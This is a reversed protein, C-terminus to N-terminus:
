INSIKGCICFSLQENLKFNDALYSKNFLQISVILSNTACKKAKYAIEDIALYNQNNM